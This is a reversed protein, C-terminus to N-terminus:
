AVTFTLEDDGASSPIFSLNMQLTAFGSDNGRTPNLLQVTEGALTCINGITTGHVFEFDGLTETDIAAFYDKDGTAPERITVQGGPTRDSIEVGAGGVINIYAAANAQDVTLALMPAAYSHLSFTSNANSVEVPTVYSSTVPTPNAEATPGAYIGTGTFQIHPIGKPDCMWRLSGRIGVIVQKVGDQWFYATASEEDDSILSYTLYDYITYHSSDDVAPSFSALAVRSSGTYDTIQREQGSGTGSIIKILMGNYYDDDGSEGVALTISSDDGAAATHDTILAHRTGVWACARLIADYAPELGATGSGALEIMFDLTVRKGIHLQTEGGLTPRINGRTIMDAVLPQITVNSALVADVSESLTPDVGYASEVGFLLVKKRFKLAM